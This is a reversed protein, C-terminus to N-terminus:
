QALMGELIEEFVPYPKAGSVKTFGIKENGIFFGPTGEVGYNQGDQLDNRVEDLHKGSELCTNFEETNLGLTVAYQEFENLVSVGKLKSWTDNNEFIMDHFSWFSDQDDACEAAIAAPVANPHISQIPFDRYVFNVKGTNIFNKEILPLTNAYFRGCFPCEYDSFEIITIPANPDGKMPDDDISVRISQTNTQISTQPSNGIKSELKLIAETLDTQTIEDSDLSTVYSGAFFASITIVAVLAIILITFMSKKIMVNDTKEIETNEDEL